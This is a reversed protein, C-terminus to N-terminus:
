SKIEDEWTEFGVGEENELVARFLNELSHFAQALVVQQGELGEWLGEDDAIFVGRYQDCARIINLATIIKDRQGDTKPYTHYNKIPGTHGVTNEWLHTDTQAFVMDHFYQNKTEPNEVVKEAHNKVIEIIEESSTVSM